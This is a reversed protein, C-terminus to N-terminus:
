YLLLCVFMSLCVHYESLPSFNNHEWERLSTGGTGWRFTDMAASRPATRGDMSSQLISRSDNLCGEKLIYIFAREKKVLSIITTEEWEFTCEPWQHQRYQLLPNLWLAGSMIFFYDTLGAYVPIIPNYHRNNLMSWYSLYMCTITINFHYFNDAM